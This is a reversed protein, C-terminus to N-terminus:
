TTKKISNILDFCKKKDIELQSSLEKPSEFKIEERIKNLLRVNLEKGYLNSNYDFFHVEISHGKDSFTPNKGINMMGYIIKNDIVSYIFYVGISPKKKFRDVVINATPFGLSKGRGFGKIVDGTLIYDYGLYANVSKINGKKQKKKLKIFHSYGDSRYSLPKGDQTVKTIKLPKQLDIQMEDDTDLVKYQITNSGKILKNEPDVEIDLHYYTLDWWAREPTISGRLTDQRTFVQSLM